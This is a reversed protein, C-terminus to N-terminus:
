PNERLERGSSRSRSPRDSKLKEAELIKPISQSQETQETSPHNLKILIQNLLAKFSELKDESVTQNRLLEKLALSVRTKNFGVNNIDKFAAEYKKTIKSGNKAVIADHSPLTIEPFAKKVATYYLNSDVIDEIEFDEKRDAFVESLIIIKEKPIGYGQLNNKINRGGNDADVLCIFNYGSSLFYKSLSCSEEEALRGNICIENYIDPNIKHIFGELIYKDSDGEVLVNYKNCLLSYAVSSGLYSRLPQLIDFEGDKRPMKNYIKTGENNPLLEVARVQEIKFPDVMGPSHTVYIVQSTPSAVDNELFHRIDKQGDLHLELAPNDLLMISNTSSSSAQSRLTTYFSLLWQFGDSRESPSLQSKYTEDKILISLYDKEITFIIQYEEQSWFKNINGSVVTTYREQFSTRDRLPKQSLESLKQMFLGAVLCLNYMGKSVKEPNKVFTDLPVYDPIKDATTSHLIFRPLRNILMNFQDKGMTNKIDTNTTELQKEATIIDNKIPVDQSPLSKLATISTKIINDIQTTESYNANVLDDIIKEFQPN